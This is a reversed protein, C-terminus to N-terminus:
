YRGGVFVWGWGGGGGSVKGASIASSIIEKDIEILSGAM